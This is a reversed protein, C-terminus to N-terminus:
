QSEKAADQAYRLICPGFPTRVPLELSVDCIKRYNAHGFHSIKTLAQAESVLPVNDNNFIIVYGFPPFAIDALITAQGGNLVNIMTQDTELRSQPLDYDTRIPNLYIFFEFAIPVHREKPNQIFRRLQECLFGPNFKSAALAMTAVQKIVNLPQIRFTAQVRDEKGGLKEALELGQKTWDYFAQGYHHQTKQQCCEGLSINGMGGKFKRAPPKNRNSLKHVDMLGSPNTMAFREDVLRQVRDPPIHEFTLIIDRTGCGRCTGRQQMRPGGKM